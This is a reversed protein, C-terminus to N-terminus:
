THDDIVPVQWEMATGGGEAPRWTCPGGHNAARWLINSLGHGPNPEAPMGCGDDVVLLCLSGTRREVTISVSGAAAHRAVNSLAEALTALLDDTMDSPLRDIDGTLSMSPEFGLAERRDAVLNALRESPAPRRQLHLEFITNRIERITDDLEDITTMIREAVEAPEAIVAVAQLSMGSAFLRQIVMDHLDRAIRERDELLELRAISRRAENRDVLRDTVDRVTAVTSRGDGLPSLSIEVPLNTGDARECMLGMGLGMPRPLPHAEYGQRLQAHRHRSLEPVLHEVGLGILETPAYGFLLHAAPNAETIVGDAGVILVADPNADFAARAGDSSVHGGYGARSRRGQRRGRPPGVSLDHVRAGVGDEVMLTELHEVGVSTPGEHVGGCDSPDGEDVGTLGDHERHGMPHIAPRHHEPGGVARLEERCRHTSRDRELDVGPVGRIPVAPADQEAPARFLHELRLFEVVQGVESQLRPGVRNRAGM